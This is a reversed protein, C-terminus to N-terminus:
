LTEEKKMKKKKRKAKQLLRGVFVARAAAHPLSCHM